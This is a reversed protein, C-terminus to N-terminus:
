YSRPLAFGASIEEAPMLNWCDSFVLHHTQFRGARRDAFFLKLTHTVTEFALEDWPIEDERFLACELSEPGPEFAPSTMRALYFLHVQDAFPVDMVTFLPGLECHLGAEEFTERLAGRSSAECSELFGGPLTWYGSRPDIARKCLLVKDEWVPLTGCVPLPNIYHIFGCRPCVNRERTDGQPISVNMESGCRSCYKISSSASM